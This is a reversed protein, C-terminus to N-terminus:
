ANDLAVVGELQGVHVRDQGPIEAVLRLHLVVEAPARRFRCHDTSRDLGLLGVPGFQPGAQQSAPGLLFLAMSRSTLSSFKLPSITRPKTRRCGSSSSTRTCSTPRM